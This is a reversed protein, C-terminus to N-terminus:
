FLWPLALLELEFSLEKLFVLYVLHIGQILNFGFQMLCIITASALWPKDCRLPFIAAQCRMKYKFTDHVKISSVKLQDCYAKIRSTQM